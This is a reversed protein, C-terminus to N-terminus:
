KRMLEVAQGSITGVLKNGQMELLLQEGGCGMLSGAGTRLDLKNNQYTGDVQYTGRCDQELRFKGVVKGDQVSVLELTGYQHARRSGDEKEMYAGAYTGILGQQAMLPTSCLLFAVATAISGIKM